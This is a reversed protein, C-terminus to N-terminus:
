CSSPIAIISYVTTVIAPTGDTVADTRRAFLSSGAGEFYGGSHPPRSDFWRGASWDSDIEGVDQNQM